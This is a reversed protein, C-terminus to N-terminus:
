GGAAVAMAPRATCRQAWADLNKFTSVDIGGVMRAFTVMSAVAVDLLSFAAGGLYEKGALERDLIGFLDQVEKKAAEAVKPNKMEAPFREATNSVLRFIATGLTVSGWSAWMLAHVRAATGAAPWLKKEVGYKEGLHLLIALSEFVAVGDDVIAPVKGNPNVKLYEPARQAGARIDIKAKEYPIGLEELAWHVRTASSMPAYYFTLSM